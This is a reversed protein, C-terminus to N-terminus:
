YGKGAAVQNQLFEWDQDTLQKIVESCRVEISIDSCIEGRSKGM